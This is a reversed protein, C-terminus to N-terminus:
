RVERYVFRPIVLFVRNQRMWQSYPGDGFDLILEPPQWLDVPYGDLPTHDMFHQMVQIAFEQLTDVSDTDDDARKQLGVDITYDWYYSPGLTAEEIRVNSCRVSTQLTSLDELKVEAVHREVAAVPLNFAGSNLQALVAEVVNKVQSSM